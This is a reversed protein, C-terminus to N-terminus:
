DSRDRRDKQDPHRLAQRRCGEAGDLRGCIGRRSPPLALMPSLRPAPSESNSRAADVDTLMLLMDACIQGALLSSARDKDIVAEIWEFSGDRRAVVPIGGYGTCIVVVGAEVLLSIAGLGLIEHPEPSAVIRRWHDGDRGITCDRVLALTAAAAAAEAYVPGIPKSPHQFAPDAAELRVQTLLTALLKGPSLRDRM